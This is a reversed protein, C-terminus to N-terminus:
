HVGILELLVQYPQQDPEVSAYRMGQSHTRCSGEMLMLKGPRNSADVADLISIAEIPNQLGWLEGVRVGIGQLATHWILAMAHQSTPQLCGELDAPVM